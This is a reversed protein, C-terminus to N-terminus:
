CVPGNPCWCAWTREGEERWRKSTRVWPERDVVKCVCVCVCVCVRARSGGVKNNERQINALNDIAVARGDPGASNSMRVTHTVLSLEARVEHLLPGATVSVAPRPRGEVVSRAEGDPLFLYAGSRERGGRTGYSLFDVAVAADEGPTDAASGLSRLLGTTASFTARLHDTTLTFDETPSEEVSFPSSFPLTHTHTHTHSHSPTHTHYHSPLTFPSPTCPHTLTLAHLYM